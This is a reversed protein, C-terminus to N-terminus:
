WGDGYPVDKGLTEKNTENVFSPICDPSLLKTYHGVVGIIGLIVAL